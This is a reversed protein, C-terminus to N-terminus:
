VRPRDLAGQGIMGGSVRRRPQVCWGQGPTSRQSCFKANQKLPHSYLVWRKTLHFLDFAQDFNGPGIASCCPGPTCGILMNRWSVVHVAYVRVRISWFLKAAVNIKGTNVCEDICVWNSFIKRELNLFLCILAHRKWWVNVIWCGNMLFILPLHLDFSFCIFM